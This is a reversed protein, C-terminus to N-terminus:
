GILLSDLLERIEGTGNGSEVAFELLSVARDTKGVSILRESLDHLYAECLFGMKMLYKIHELGKEKEDGMGYSAALVAIALPYEPEKKLLNELIPITKEIDGILVECTTYIIVAEKLSPDLEM